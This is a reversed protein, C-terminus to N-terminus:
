YSIRGKLKQMREIFGWAKNFLYKGALPATRRKDIQYIMAHGYSPVRKALKLPQNFINQFFRALESEYNLKIDKTVFWPQRLKEIYAKSDNDLYKIYEIAEEISAYNILHIFSNENFDISVNPDGYYIPLSNSIMPEVIKETTYGSVASNEIAITFKYEQIFTLKNDVPKGINNFLRGGSDVKKYMSLKRFFDERIPDALKSNSYVFNCFKRNAFTESIDKQQLKGALEWMTLLYLPFRIFRDELQLHHFGIVYDYINLDPVINEGCFFIKVCNNYKFHKHGYCSCFLYDPAPSIEIFYYRSLFNYFFNNQANFGEWFDIFNLKIPYM